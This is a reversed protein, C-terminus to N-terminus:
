SCGAMTLNWQWEGGPQHWLLGLLSDLSKSTCLPLSAMRGCPLLPPCTLVLLPCTYEELAPPILPLRPPAQEGVEGRCVTSVRARRQHGCLGLSSGPSRKGGPQLSAVRRRGRVSCSCLFAALVSIFDSTELCCLFHRPKLQFHNM